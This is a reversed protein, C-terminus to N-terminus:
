AMRRSCGAPSSGSDSGSPRDIVVKPPMSHAVEEGRGRQLRRELDPPLVEVTVEDTTRALAVLGVRVAPLTDQAVAHLQRRAEGGGHQDALRLPVVADPQPPADRGLVKGRPPVHG